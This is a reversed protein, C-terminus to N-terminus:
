AAGRAAPSTGDSGGDSGGGAGGGPRKGGKVRVADGAKLKALADSVVKAGSDLGSALYATGGARGAITVPTMKVKNGAGVTWVFSGDRGNQIAAEPLAILPVGSALPVEVNVLGGPWLEGARNDFEAKATLSGTTADVSNDLFNLRGTALPTGATQDRAVVPITGRALGTRLAQIQTPPVAFRVTIPSLQNVTVLPTTDGARVTAGLKYGIEGTRGSVPARVTLYSLSTESASIAARAAAIAANGGSAAAQKLDLTAKSVFGKGVLAEARKLDAGAQAATARASDLAARNQAINARVLRDDLRFLPQGERVQDGERFLVATIQGDVRSRVAVSQLPTVTGLLTLRPVYDAPKAVVVAVMTPPRKKGKGGGAGGGAGGSASDGGGGCGAVLAALLLAAALRTPAM